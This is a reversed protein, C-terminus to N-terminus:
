SIKRSKITMELYWATVQIAELQETATQLGDNNYPWGMKDPTYTHVHTHTHSLPLYPIQQLWQAYLMHEPWGETIPIAGVM